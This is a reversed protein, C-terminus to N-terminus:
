LSFNFLLDPRQPSGCQLPTAILTALLPARRLPSRVSRIGGEHLAGTLWAQPGCTTDNTRRDDTHASALPNKNAPLRPARRLAFALLFFSCGVCRSVFLFFSRGALFLTPVRFFFPFTAPRAALDSPPPLLTPPQAHLLSFTGVSRKRRRHIRAHQPHTRSHTRPRQRRALNSSTAFSLLGGPGRAVFISCKAVHSRPAPVVARIRTASSPARDPAAGGRRHRTGYAASSCTTM